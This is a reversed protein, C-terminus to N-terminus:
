AGFLGVHLAHIWHDIEYLKKTGAVSGHLRRPDDVTMDLQLTKDDV